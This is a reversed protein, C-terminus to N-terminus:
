ACHLATRGDNDTAVIDAEHELLGNVVQSHGNTSAEHIPTSCYYASRAEVDRGNKLLEIFVQVLGYGSARQLPTWGLSDATNVDAGARLLLGVEPVNNKRVV